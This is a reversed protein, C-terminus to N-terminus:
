KQPYATILRPVTQGTEIFWAVCVDPNRGDPTLLTGEVTYSTGYPTDRVATVDNQAAHQRLANAFVEWQATTFGFRRFFAAKTKGEPHTSSLLYDIVKRAPVVSQEYAPLKETAALREKRGEGCCHIM